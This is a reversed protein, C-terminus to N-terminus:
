IAGLWSRAFDKLMAFLGFGAGGLTGRYCGSLLLRMFIRQRLWLSKEYYLTGRERTWVSLSKLHSAGRILRDRYEITCKHSLATLADAEANRHDAAQLFHEFPTSKIRDLKARLGYTYNAFVAEDHRRYLLLPKALLYRGGLVFGLLSFWSNHPWLAGDPFRPRNEAPINRLLDGRVCICCGLFTRFPSRLPRTMRSVWIGGVRAGSPRLQKNCALAEHIIVNLRCNAVIRAAIIRLKDPLWVDDQDCFAIWDGQALFAAKLFNAGFGLNVENKCVHVPFRATRAFNEAIEVTRDTSGDDTVVLEHPTHSQAAISLLQELLYREGNYTAMAVSIRIDPYNMSIM